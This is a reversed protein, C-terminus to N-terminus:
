RQESRWDRLRSMVKLYREPDTQRLKELTEDLRQRRMARYKSLAEPDNEELWKLRVSKGKAFQEKSRAYAEPYQERSLRVGEKREAKKQKAIERLTRSDQKVLQRIQEIGDAMSTDGAEDVDFLDLVWAEVIDLIPFILKTKPLTRYSANRLIARFRPSLGGCQAPENM